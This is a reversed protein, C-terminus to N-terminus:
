CNQRYFPGRKSKKVNNWGNQQFSQIEMNGNFTICTKTFYENYKLLGILVVVRTFSIIQGVNYIMQLEVKIDEM